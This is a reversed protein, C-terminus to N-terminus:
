ELRWGQLDPNLLYMQRFTQEHESDGRGLALELEREEVPAPASVLGPHAGAWDWVTGMDSLAAPLAVVPRTTEYTRPLGRLWLLVDDEKDSVHGNIAGPGAVVLGSPGPRMAGFGLVSPVPSAALRELAGAIYPASESGSTGWIDMLRHPISLRSDLEGLAALAEKRVTHDADRRARGALAGLVVAGPRDLSGLREAARSRVLSEPASLGGLLAREFVYHPDVRDVRVDPPERSEAVLEELLETCRACGQLHATLAPLVSAIEGGERIIRVAEILEDEVQACAPTQRMDFPDLM